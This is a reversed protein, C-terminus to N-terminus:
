WSIYHFNVFFVQKKLYEGQPNMWAVWYPYWDLWAVALITTLMENTYYLEQFFFMFGFNKFCSNVIIESHLLHNLIQYMDIM